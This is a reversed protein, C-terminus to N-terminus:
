SGFSVDVMMLAMASVGAISFSSVVAWGFHFLPERAFEGRIKKSVFAQTAKIVFGIASPLTILIAFVAFSFGGSDM